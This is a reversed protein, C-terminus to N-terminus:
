EIVVDVVQVDDYCLELLMVIVIVKDLQVVYYVSVICYGVYYGLDSVGFWNNSSNYLWDCYDNGCWDVQFWVKLEVEYVLGYVYLLLDFKKGIVLEVVLEVVGECLVYQVFIDGVEVQQIYIYEYINNQGNNYFLQFVYFICLWIQLFEFFELVDVSDDGLVFEVGILVKDDFMIGGICLVGIVYIIGVLCLVFYLCSFIVLDVEFLVIVVFVCGILLCVLVWYCLWVDIVVVYQDDIYGCVWMLVYLGFMGKGIYFMNILVKRCVLDIEVCIVDYVIWFNVIDCIEVQLVVVMVVLVMGVVLFVVFMWMWVKM